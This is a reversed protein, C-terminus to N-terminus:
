WQAGASDTLLRYLRVNTVFSNFRLKTIEVGWEAAEVALEKQLQKFLRSRKEPTLRDADVEALREALFSGVLEQTSEHYDDVATLALKVDFVRATAIASFSLTTGDQTTIDERGCGVLAPATSATLVECFWPVIVKLGPGVERHWRGCVLYGGREWAQVIRLPWIFRIVELITRLLDSM